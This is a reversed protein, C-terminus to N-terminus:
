GLPVPNVNSGGEGEEKTELNTKFGWHLLWRFVAETPMMTEMLSPLSPLPWPPRPQHQPLTPPLIHLPDQLVTHGGPLSCVLDPHILAGKLSFAPSFYFEQCVSPLSLVSKGQSSYCVTCMKIGNWM